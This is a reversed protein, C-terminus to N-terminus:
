ILGKICGYGVFIIQSFNFAKFIFDLSNPIGPHVTDDFPLRKM